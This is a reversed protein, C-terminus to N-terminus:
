VVSKIGAIDEMEGWKERLQGKALVDMVRPDYILLTPRTSRLIRLPGEAM